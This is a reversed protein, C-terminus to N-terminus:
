LLLLLLSMLLMSLMLLWPYWTTELLWPTASTIKTGHKEVAPGQCMLFKYMSRGTKEKLDAAFDPVQRCASPKLKPVHHIPWTSRKVIPHPPQERQKLKM